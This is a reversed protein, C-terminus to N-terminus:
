RFVSHVPIDKESQPWGVECMIDALWFSQRADWAFTNKAAGPTEIEHRRAASSKTAFPVYLNQLLYTWIFIAIKIGAKSVKGQEHTIRM